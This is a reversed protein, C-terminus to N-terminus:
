SEDLTNSYTTEIVESGWKTYRWWVNYITQVECKKLDISKIVGKSIVNAIPEAGPTEVASTVVNTIGKYYHQATIRVRVFKVAM